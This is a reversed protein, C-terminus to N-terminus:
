AKFFASVVRSVYGGLVSEVLAFGATLQAFPLHPPMVKKEILFLLAFIYVPLLIYALRVLPGSVYRVPRENSKHARLYDDLMVYLYGALTPALIGICAWGQEDSFGGTSWHYGLRGLVLLKGLLLMWLLRNKFTDERLMKRAAGPTPNEPLRDLCHLLTQSFRAHQITYDEFKLQGTNWIQATHAMQASLGTLTNVAETIGSKEAHALAAELAAKLEGAAVKQRIEHLNM